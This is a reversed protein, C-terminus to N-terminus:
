SGAGDAPKLAAAAAGRRRSERIKSVVYERGYVREAQYGNHRACLLRLNSETSEGGLAFPLIHDLQVGWTSGCRRGDSGVFTCCSQDRRYVAAKVSVPIHRSPAGAAPESKALAAAENDREKACGKAKVKGAGVPVKKVKVEHAKLYFSMAELFLEELGAGRPHKNSLLTRMGSLAEEFREGASFSYRKTVECRTGEQPSAKSNNELFAGSSARPLAEALPTGAEVGSPFPREGSGFLPAGSPAVPEPPLIPPLVPPLAPSKGVVGVVRVVDRARETPARYKAAVQEVEAQGLGSVEELLRDQNEATLVASFICVTSLSVHREKLLQYVKPYDRICRAAKIRRNAAGESYKLKERCYAFLSSFGLASHLRREELEILQLLLELTTKSERLSLAELNKILADDPINKLQYRDQM